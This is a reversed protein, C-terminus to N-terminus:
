IIFKDDKLYPYSSILVLLSEISSYSLEIEANEAFQKDTVLYTYNRNATYVIIEDGTYLKDLYRFLEGYTDNYATLMMIGLEGPRATGLKQGVGKKLDEPSDGLVIPADINIRPIQIRIAQEPTQPTTSFPIPRTNGQPDPPSHAGSLIFSKRVTLKSELQIIEQALATGTAQLIANQNDPNSTLQNVIGAQSTQLASLTVSAAKQDNLQSLSPLAAIIILVVCAFLIIRIRTSNLKEPLLRKLLLDFLVGLAAAAAIGLFTLLFSM